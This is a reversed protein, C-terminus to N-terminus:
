FDSVDAPMGGQRVRAPAHKREPVTEAAAEGTEPKFDRLARAAQQTRPSWMRVVGVLEQGSDPHVYTWTTYDTIGSLSLEARQKVQEELKSVFGVNEVATTYGGRKQETLTYEEIIQGTTAQNSFVLNGNVFMALSADAASRALSVASERRRDLARASGGRDVIAHQGFAVVVPMGDEDYMRRVGFQSAFRESDRGLQEALPPPTRQAQLKGRGQLIDTAFQHFSPSYVVLVGVVYQGRGDTGEFTQLPLLGALSGYGRTTTTNLLTNTYHDERRVNPPPEFDAPDLGMDVLKSNLKADGVALLKAFMSRLRGRTADMDAVPDPPLGYSDDEFLDRTTETLLHAFQYRIFEVRANIIANEYAAVRARGWAPNDLGVAVPSSGWGVYANGPNGMAGLRLGARDLFEDRASAILQHASEVPASREAYILATEDENASVFGAAVVLASLATLSHISTKM